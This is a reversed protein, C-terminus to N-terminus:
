LCVGGVQGKFLTRKVNRNGIRDLLMQRRVFKKTLLILNELRSPKAQNKGGPPADTEGGGTDGLSAWQLLFDPFSRFAKKLAVVATKRHPLIPHIFSFQRDSHSLGAKAWIGRLIHGDVLGGM